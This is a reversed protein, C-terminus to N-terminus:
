TNLFNSVSALFHKLFVHVFPLSGYYNLNFFYVQHDKWLSTYCPM